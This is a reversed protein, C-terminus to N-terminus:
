VWGGSCLPCLPLPSDLHPGLSRCPCAGVSNRPDQASGVKHQKEGKEAEHQAAVGGVQLARSSWECDLGGSCLWACDGLGLSRSGGGQGSRDGRPQGRWAHQQLEQGARERRSMGRGKSQVSHMSFAAPSQSLMARRSFARRTAYQVSPEAQLRKCNLGARRAPDTAAAAACTPVTTMGFRTGTRAPLSCLRGNIAGDTRQRSSSGRLVRAHM